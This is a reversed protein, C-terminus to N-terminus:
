FTRPGFTTVAFLGKEVLCDSLKLLVDFPHNFWQFAANSAIIDYRNPCRWTEVDSRVWQVRASGFRERAKWLMVESIDLATIEAEPYRQLLLRTLGGTGAGVDLVARVPLSNLSEVYVLRTMLKEAMERQIDAHMDYEHAHLDFHHAVLYRDIEENM